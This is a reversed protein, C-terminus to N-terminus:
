PQQWVKREGNLYCVIVFPISKFEDYRPHDRMKVFDDVTKGYILPEADGDNEYAKHWRDGCCPCDQGTECGNFYLGNDEAIANAVNASSAEVIFYKSPKTFRGGSNNQTYTYFM